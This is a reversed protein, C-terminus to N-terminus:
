FWRVRGLARIRGGNERAGMGWNMVSLLLPGPRARSREAPPFRRPGRLPKTPGYAHTCNLPPRRRMSQRRCPSFTPSTSYARRGGLPARSSWPPPPSAPRRGGEPAQSPSDRIHWRNVQRQRARRTAAGAPCPFRQTEEKATGLSEIYLHWKKLFGQSKLGLNSDLEPGVM